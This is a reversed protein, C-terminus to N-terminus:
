RGLLKGADRLLDRATEPSKLAGEATNRMLTRVDVSSSLATFPGTINVPIAPPQGAIMFDMGLDLQEFVLNIAGGGAGSLLSSQLTIDKSTLIGREINGSGSIREFPFDTPVDKIGRLNSPILSFGRVDGKQVLLSSKGKLTPAIEKWSGGRGNVDADASLTGSVTTKADLARCLKEMSMNKASAALSLTPTGKRTDLRATGTAAGDLAELSFPATLLGNEAQLTFALKNISLKNLTLTTITVAVNGNVGDLVTAAGSKKGPAADEQDSLKDSAERGATARGGPAVKPRTLNPAGKVDESGGSSAASGPTTLKGLLEDLNLNNVSLDGTLRAPTKGEPLVLALNGGYGAKDLSGKLDHIELSRKAPVYRLEAQNKVTFPEAALGTATLDLTDFRVSFDGAAAFRAKGKLSFQLKRSTMEDALGGTAAFPINADQHVSNVSLDDLNGSYSAGTRLNRYLVRGGKCSFREVQVVLHSFYGQKRGNSQAPDTLPVVKDSGASAPAAPQAFADRSATADDVRTGSTNEPLDSDFGYDWNNRGATTTVLQVVPANLSIEEVQIIGQLLPKVALSVSASEVTVFAGGGFTGPDNMVLRGTKLSPSPFLSTVISGQFQLQRGTAKEVATAIQDTYANPDFTALLIGVGVAALLVLGTFGLFIILLVRRM